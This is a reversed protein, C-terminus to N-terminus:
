AINEGRLYEWCSKRVRKEKGMYYNWYHRIQKSDLFELLLQVNKDSIIFSFKQTLESFLELKRLM